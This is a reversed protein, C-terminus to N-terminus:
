KYTERGTSSAEWRDQWTNITSERQIKKRLDKTIEHETDDFIACKEKILLDIPIGNAIVCVADFSITRYAKYVMILTERQVGILARKLVKKRLAEPSCFECGYTLHNQGEEICPELHDVITDM